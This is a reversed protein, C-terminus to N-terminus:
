LRDPYYAEAVEQPTHAAPRPNDETIRDLAHFVYGALVIPWPGSGAIGLDDRTINLRKLAKPRNLEPFVQVLMDFDVDPLDREETNVLDVGISRYCELVFGACSFRRYQPRGTEPASQWICQPRVVYRKFPSDPPPEKDVEELWDEIGEKDDLDLSVSGVVHVPCERKTRQPPRTREGAVLPPGMHWVSVPQGWKLESDEALVAVHRVFHSDTPDCYM